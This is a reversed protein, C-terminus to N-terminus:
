ASDILRCGGALGALSPWEGVWGPREAYARKGCKDIGARPSDEVYIVLPTLRTPSSNERDTDDNYDDYCFYDPWGDPLSCM